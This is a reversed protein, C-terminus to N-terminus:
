GDSTDATNASHIHSGAASKRWNPPTRNAWKVTNLFSVSRCGNLSQTSPSCILLDHNNLSPANKNYYELLVVANEVIYVLQKGCYHNNMHNPANIIVSLYYILPYISDQLFVIDLSSSIANTIWNWYSSDVGNDTLSRNPIM